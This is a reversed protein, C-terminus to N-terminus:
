LQPFVGVTRLILYTLYLVYITVFLIGTKRGLKGTFALAFVLYVKLKSQSIRVELGLPWFMVVPNLIQYESLVLEFAVNDPTAPLM